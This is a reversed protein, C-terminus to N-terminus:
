GANENVAKKIAVKDEARRIRRSAPKVEKRGGWSKGAMDKRHGHNTKIHKRGLAM